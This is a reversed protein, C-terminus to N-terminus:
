LVGLIVGLVGFSDMERVLDLATLKTCKALGSALHECGKSGIDNGRQM